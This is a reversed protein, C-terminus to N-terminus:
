EVRSSSTQEEALQVIMHVYRKDNYTDVLEVKRPHYREQLSNLEKRVAGNISADEELLMSLIPIVDESSETGQSSIDVDSTPLTANTRESDTLKNSSSTGSEGTTKRRFASSLTPPAGIADKWRNVVTKLVGNIEDAFEEVEYKFVSALADNNKLPKYQCEWEQNYFNLVFSVQQGRLTIRSIIAEQYGESWKIDWPTQLVQDLLGIRFDTVSYVLAIILNSEQSKLLLKMAHSSNNTAEGNVTLIIDGPFLSAKGFLGDADVHTVRVLGQRSELQIGIGNANDKTTYKEDQAVSTTSELTDEKKVRVYRVGPARQGESVFFNVDGKISKIIKAARMPCKVRHSNISLIEHGKRLTTEAFISTPSMDKVVVVGAESKGNRALVLGSLQDTSQKFASVNLTCPLTFLPQVEDGGKKMSSQVNDLVHKATDVQSDLLTAKVLTMSELKSTASTWSSMRSPMPRSASTKEEDDSVAHLNTTSFDSMITDVTSRRRMKVSNERVSPQELPSSSFSVNRSYVNVTNLRKVNPSNNSGNIMGSVSTSRDRRQTDTQFSAYESTNGMSQVSEQSGILGKTHPLGSHLAKAMAKLDGHSGSSGKRSLGGSTAIGVTNRRQLSNDNAGGGTLGLAAASSLSQRTSKPDLDFTANSMNGNGSSPHMTSYSGFSDKLLSGMSRLNGNTGFMKNDAGVALSTHLSTNTNGTALGVAASFRLASAESEGSYAHRTNKRMPIYRHASQETPAAAVSAMLNNKPDDLPHLEAAEAVAMAWLTDFEDDAVIQEPPFNHTSSM